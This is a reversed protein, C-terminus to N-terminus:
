TDPGTLFTRAKERLFLVASVGRKFLQKPTQQERPRTILFRQLLLSVRGIPSIRPNNKRAPPM